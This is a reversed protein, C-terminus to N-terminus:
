IETLAKTHCELYYHFLDQFLFCHLILSFATSPSLQPFSGSPVKKQFFGFRHRQPPLMEVDAEQPLPHYMQGLRSEAEQSRLTMLLLRYRPQPSAAGACSRRCSECAASGAAPAASLASCDGPHSIPFPRAPACWLCWWCGSVEAQAPSSLGRAPLLCIGLSRCCSLLATLLGDNPATLVSSLSSAAATAVCFGPM